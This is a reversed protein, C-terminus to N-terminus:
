NLADGLERVERVSPPPQVEVPHGDIDLKEFRDKVIQMSYDMADKFSERTTKHSKLEKLSVRMM